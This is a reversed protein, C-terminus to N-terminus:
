CLYLKQSFPIIQKIYLTNFIETYENQSKRMNNVFNEILNLLNQYMEQHMCDNQIELLSIITSISYFSAQVITNENSFSVDLAKSFIKIFNSSLFITLDSISILSFILLSASYKSEFPSDSLLADCIGLILDINPPLSKDIYIKQGLLLLASETTKEFTNNSIMMGYFSDATNILIEANILSSINHNIKVMEYVIRLAYSLADAPNQNNIIQILDNLIIDNFFYNRINSNSKWIKLLCSCLKYYINIRKMEFATQYINLIKEIKSYDEIPLQSNFSTNKILIYSFFSYIKKETKLVFQDHNNKMQFIRNIIEYVIEFYSHGNLLTEFFFQVNCFESKIAMQLFKIFYFSAMVKMINTTSNSILFTYLTDVFEKRIFFQATEPFKYVIHCIISLVIDKYPDSKLSILIDIFLSNKCIKEIIEQPPDERYELSNKLLKLLCILEDMQSRNDDLDWLEQIRSFLLDWGITYGHYIDTDLPLINRDCAIPNKYSLNM